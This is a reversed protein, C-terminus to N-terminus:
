AEAKLNKAARNMAEATNFFSWRSKLNTRLESVHYVGYSSDTSDPTFVQLVFYENVQQWVRGKVVSKDKQVSIFFLGVMFAEQASVRKNFKFIRFAL